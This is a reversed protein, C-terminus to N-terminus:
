KKSHAIDVAAGISGAVFGYLGGIVAGGLTGVGPFVVSGAVGGLSAGGVASLFLDNIIGGGNVVLSEDLGLADFKDFYEM